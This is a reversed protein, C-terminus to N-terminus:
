LCDGPLADVWAAILQAGAVDALSRGLEPMMIDARESEMRHVLISADADGPVIAFIRNGTGRGAAIPPKCIGLNPGGPEWPELFLGSTDAPGTRSHCHACNIDLYARAAANREVASLPVGAEWAYAKPAAEPAEARDLLGLEIWAAIQNASGTEYAFPRNLHRAKPGIPRLKEDATDVVHCAACQNVDPVM